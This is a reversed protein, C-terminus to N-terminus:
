ESKSYLKQRSGDAKLAEALLILEDLQPKKSELERVVSQLHIRFLFFNNFITNFNIANCENSHKKSKSVKQKSFAETIAEHDSVDVSYNKAM